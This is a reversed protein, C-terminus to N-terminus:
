TSSLLFHCLRLLRNASCLSWVCTIKPKVKKSRSIFNIFILSNYMKYQGGVGAVHRCPDKLRKAMGIWRDGRWGTKRNAPASAWWVTVNKAPGPLPPSRYLVVVHPIASPEFSGQILWTSAECASHGLISDDKSKTVKKINDFDNLFAKNESPSIPNVLFFVEM